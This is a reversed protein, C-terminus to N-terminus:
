PEDPDEEQASEESSSELFEDVREAALDAQLTWDTHLLLAMLLVIQVTVGLMLGYWLGELGWHWKFTFWILAPVGVAYYCIFNIVSGVLQQGSGRLVGSLIAQLAVGFQSAVVLPMLQSVLAIVGTEDASTFLLAWQKRVLLLLLSVGAGVLLALGISTHLALRARGPKNAGLENSVRVSVATSLGLPLMFCLATTNFCVTMASVQDEPNPLLGALIVILEFCWLELCTMLCAPIALALFPGWDELCDRSWGDWTRELIGSTEYRLYLVLLGLNVIESFSNAIAAGTFGFDFTYIFLYNIPIHLLLSLGSCLALPYSIAQSQIYEAVPYLWASAVLGPILYLMYQGALAAIAPEQHWLLLIDEAKLWLLAIPICFITMIVGGRQLMLGLQEYQEAGYAQGCLTELASALGEMVSIGTVNAVSAALAAAALQTAGLHGVFMVSVLALMFEFINMTSIPLAMTWQKYAEAKLNAVAPLGVLPLDKEDELESQDDAAIPGTQGHLLPAELDTTVGFPRDFGMGLGLPPQLPRPRTKKEPPKIPPGEAEDADDASWSGEDPVELLTSHPVSNSRRHRGTPPLPSHPLGPRHGYHRPVDIVQTIAKRSASDSRRLFQPAPKTSSPAM